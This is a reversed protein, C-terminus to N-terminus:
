AAPHTYRRALPLGSFISATRMAAVTSVSMAARKSLAACAARWYRKLSCSSILLAALPCGKATNGNHSFTTPFPRFRTPRPRFRPSCPRAPRM